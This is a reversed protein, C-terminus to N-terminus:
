VGHALGNINKLVALLNDKQGDGLSSNIIVPFQDKGQLFAYELHNPLEKLELKPPEIISPKLKNEPKCLELPEITEKRPYFSVM